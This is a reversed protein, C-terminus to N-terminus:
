HITNSSTKESTRHNNVKLKNGPAFEDFGIILSWPRDPGLPSRNAAEIYAEKLSASTDLLEQLLKLPHLIVWQFPQEHDQLDLEFVHTLHQIREHVYEGVVRRSFSESLDINRLSALLTSLESQSIRLGAIDALADQKKARKSARSM